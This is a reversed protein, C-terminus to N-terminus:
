DVARVAGSQARIARRRRGRPLYGEDEAAGLEEGRALKLALRALPPVAAAMDAASSGTPVVYVDRYLAAAPNAPAMATVAPRGLGRQVARCVAGCAVGYRGADFAPGAVVVDPRYPEILRLAEAAAEDPREAMYVDGGVVTGVVEAEAGLRQQLLRGPGVAGDRASPAVGAADEGGVGGFFQNVYHVVRPGTM